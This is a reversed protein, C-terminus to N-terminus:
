FSKSLAVYVFRQRLDGQSPDFGIGYVDSFPPAADFLDDAGLRLTVGRSLGRADPLARALDVTAQLDVITSASVTLGNRVNNPGVDAYSSIYRVNTTVAYPGRSWTLTGVAKWRPISGNVDAIGVRESAPTSPFDATVYRSVRTAGLTPTFQGLRTHFTATAELDVGSTDLSGLNLNSTDILTIPGPLGAAVDAASPAARIVRDPFLAENALLLFYSYSSVIRRDQQVRWFTASFRPRGPWEPQWVVGYSDSRSTEAKLNPNGGSVFTAVFPQGNRAPDSPFNIGAYSTKPAFLQFLGPARYSEGYSARVLLSRIPRWELGYEPNFTGGFDSYHDYRGALRLALKGIPVTASDLLPILSEGYLAWSTRHADGSQVAYGAAPQILSMSERRAEAGAVVQVEGAPLRFVNGRAFGGVQIERSAKTIANTSPDNVLSTLLAPSGGPGDQFVNLALGPSTAGLAAYLRTLNVNNSTYFNARGQAAVLSTEWDWGHFRGRLGAVERYSKVFSNDTIPGIGLLEYSVRVPAGFPNFPNAAPVLASTVLPANRVMQDTQDSYMLEGFATAGAGLDYSGNAVLGYRESAPVASWQSRLSTLNQQGAGAVFDAPTLGVGSSGPPVAACSTGLGPLNGSVACVNGPDSTLVRRDPGGFRRYDANAALDRASGFLPDRKFYDLVLAGKARPTEGGASFTFRTEDAGGDAWGRYLDIQPHPIESKLVINVVGGVADAGYIASASDALVEIREVAPLPITNLDFVSRSISGAGPVTRRGNILVLTTGAALGRLQVYREGGVNFGEGFSYPQQPLFKLVDAVSNVGIAEIRARDIVTVPSPGEDTQALRSGVVTVASVSLAAEPATAAPTDEARVITVGGSATRRWALGSGQLVVTLGAGAEFRGKVAPSLRGKVLSPSFILQQGTVRAVDALAQGLPESPLDLDYRRTQAAAASVLM